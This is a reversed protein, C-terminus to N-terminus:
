NTTAAHERRMTAICTRCYHRRGDPTSAFRFVKGRCRECQVRKSTHHEVPGLVPLDAVENAHRRRALEAFDAATVGEGRGEEFAPGRAPRRSPAHAECYYLRGVRVSGPGLPGSCTGCRAPTGPETPASM